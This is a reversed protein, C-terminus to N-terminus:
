SSRGFNLKLSIYPIGGIRKVVPALIERLWYFYQLYWPKDLGFEREMQAITAASIQPNLKLQTFYNGPALQLIFFSILTLGLILPITHLIRNLIYRILM